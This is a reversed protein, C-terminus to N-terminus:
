KSQVILAVFGITVLVALALGIIGCVRGAVASGADWRQPERAVDKLVRNGWLFALIGFLIGVPSCGFTALSIIGFTLSPSADPHRQRVQIAEGGPGAEATALKELAALPGQTEVVAPLVRRLAPEISRALETRRAADLGARRSAYAVVFRKLQPELQRSPEPSVAPSPPSPAAEEPAPPQAWISSIPPLPAAPPPVAYALDKLSVAGQERVVLTGAALDGLRKGRGNIFLTVLGVGYYAPLFDVLRVLNRILAQSFTIPQGQDGVVRLKLARKGPTQGAFTAEAILFYFFTIVFGALILLVITLQQDHLSIGIVLIVIYVVILIATLILSDILQALFRSGPGAVPYQFTVREPTPVVLDANPDYPQM